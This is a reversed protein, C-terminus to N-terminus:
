AVRVTLIVDQTELELHGEILMLKVELIKIMRM